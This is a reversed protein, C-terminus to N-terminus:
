NLFNTGRVGRPDDHDLRAILKSMLGTSFTWTRAHDRIERCCRVFENWRFCNLWPRRHRRASAIAEPAASITLLLRSMVALVADPADYENLFPLKFITRTACSRAFAIEIFRLFTYPTRSLFEVAFTARKNMADGCEGGTEPLTRSLGKASLRGQKAQM